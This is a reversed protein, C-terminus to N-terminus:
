DYVLAGYVTALAEVPNESTLFNPGQTLLVLAFATALIGFAAAFASSGDNRTM